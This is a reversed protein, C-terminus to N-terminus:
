VISDIDGSGGGTGSSSSSSGGSSGGGGGGGGGSRSSGGSGSGSNADTAAKLMESTTQRQLSAGDAFQITYFPETAQPAVSHSRMSTTCITANRVENVNM